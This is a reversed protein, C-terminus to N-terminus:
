YEGYAEEIIKIFRNKITWSYYVPLLSLEIKKVIVSRGGEKIKKVIYSYVGSRKLTIKKEGKKAKFAEESLPDMSAPYITRRKSLKKIEKARKIASITDGDEYPFFEYVVERSPPELLRELGTFVKKNIYEFVCVDDHIYELLGERSINMRKLDRQPNLSLSLLFRFFDLDDNWKTMTAGSDVLIRPPKEKFLEDTLLDTVTDKYLTDAIVSNGIKLAAADFMTDIAAFDFLCFGKGGKQSILYQQYRVSSEMGKWLLGIGMIATPRYMYTFQLFDKFLLVDPTYAMTICYDYVGDWEWWNQGYQYRARTPSAVVAFSVTIDRKKKIAQYLTRALYYLNKERLKNLKYFNYVLWRKYLSLRPYRTLTLWRIDEAEV